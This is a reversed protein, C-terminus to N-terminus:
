RDWRELMLMVLTQWEAVGRVTYPAFPMVGNQRHMLLEMRRWWAIRKMRVIDELQKKLLKLTMNQLNKFWMASIRIPRAKDLTTMCLMISMELWKLAM